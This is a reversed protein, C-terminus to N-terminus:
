KELTLQSFLTPRRCTIRCHVDRSVGQCGRLTVVFNFVGARRRPPPSLTSSSPPYCRLPENNCSYTCLLPHIGEYNLAGENIGLEEFGKGRERVSM